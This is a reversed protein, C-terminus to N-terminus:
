MADQVPFVVSMSLKSKTGEKYLVLTFAAISSLFYNISQFSDWENQLFYM